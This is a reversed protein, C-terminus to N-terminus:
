RLEEITLSTAQRCAGTSASTGGATCFAKCSFNLQNMGGRLNQHNGPIHLNAFYHGSMRLRYRDEVGEPQIAPFALNCFVLFDFMTSGDMTGVNFGQQLFEVFHDAFSGARM